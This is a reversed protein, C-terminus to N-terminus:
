KAKAYTDTMYVQGEHSYTFEFGEGKKVMKITAKGPKGDMGPAEGSLEYGADTTTGKFVLPQQTMSNFWWMTASKGDESWATVGHGSYDGMASKSDLTQVLVTKGAGLTYSSTGESAGMGSGTVTWKNATLAKVLANGDVCKVTPPMGGGAMPDDGATARGAVIGGALLAAASLAMWTRRM